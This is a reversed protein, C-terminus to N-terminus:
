RVDFNVGTFSITQKTAASPNGSRPFLQIISYTRVGLSTTESIIYYIVPSISFTASHLCKGYTSLFTLSYLGAELTGGEYEYFLIIKSNTFTPTFSNICSGVLNSDVSLASFISDTTLGAM